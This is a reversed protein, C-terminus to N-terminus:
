SRRLVRRYVRHLGRGARSRRVGRLAKEKARRWRHARHLEARLHEIEGHLRAEHERMAVGEVLLATIADVAADAVQSERPSDPDAWRTPPPGPHLDALDGVVDYGRRRVEDSWQESVEVAWPHVDPPLALRPSGSRASLTRHALLERVLPRYDAPPVVGTAATNIRRVLAAEPVGLSANARDAELDLEIGDLGFASSFRQWLLDRDAGSPPVTILHVREPPLDGVWRDLIAPIEQAAWFWSSVRTPRAPDRLDALFKEYTLTSRHKVTEQWEAPVQRVLDRVSILVHVEAGDPDGPAHGLDALAQAAQTRTATALIEHSVISTGEFARVQAALQEWRGVAETELGGWPLDMLDLAALFHADFRDAPYLVGARELAPRSRWLVDQLYSTGTKPTGVHLLVKASM